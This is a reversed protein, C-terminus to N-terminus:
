FPFLIRPVSIDYKRISNRVFNEAKGSMGVRKAGLHKQHKMDAWNGVAIELGFIRSLDECTGLYEIVRAHGESVSIIHEKSPSPFM